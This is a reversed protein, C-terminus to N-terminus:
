RHDDSEDAFGEPEMPDVTTTTFLIEDLGTVANGATSASTSAETRHAGVPVRGHRGPTVAADSM